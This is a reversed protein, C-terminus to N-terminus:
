RKAGASLGFRRRFHRDHNLVVAEGCPRGGLDADELPRGGVAHEAIGVGGAPRGERHFGQRLPFRLVRFGPLSYQAAGAGFFLLLFGDQIPSLLERHM